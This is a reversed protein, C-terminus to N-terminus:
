LRPVPSGGPPVAQHRKEAADLGSEVPEMRDKFKLELVLHETKNEQSQSQM